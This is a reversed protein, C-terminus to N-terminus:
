LFDSYDILTVPADPTGHFFAGEETRGYIVPAATPEPQLSPDPETTPAPTDTIARVPASEQAATAAPEGPAVIPPATVTAPIEVTPRATPESVAAPEDPTEGPACGALLFWGTLLVLATHKM